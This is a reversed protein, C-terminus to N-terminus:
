YGTGLDVYRDLARDNLLIRRTSGCMGDRICFGCAFTQLKSWGSRTIGVLFLKKDTVEQACVEM